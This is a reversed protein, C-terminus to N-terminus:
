RVEVERVMGHRDHPQGDRADRVRCVLAYRGPALSLEMIARSGPAIDTIGGSPTVPSAGEQTNMWRIFDPVHKGPALRSVIVEHAQTGENLVVVRHRGATLPRAIAFSYDRLIISDEAIAVPSTASRGARVVVIKMMGMAFHIINDPSKVHCFVIYRGPPVNVTVVSEGNRPVANPGGVAHMWGPHAGGAQLALFADRLEHGDDLRYLMLHHPQAGENRLRFTTLGAAITDPMQFAFERTRVEVVHPTAQAACPPALVALAAAVAFRSAHGVTRVRAAAAIAFM